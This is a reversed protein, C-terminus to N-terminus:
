PKSTKQTLEFRFEPNKPRKCMSSVVAEVREALDDPWASVVKCQRALVPPTLQLDAVTYNSFQLLNAAIPNPNSQLMNATM